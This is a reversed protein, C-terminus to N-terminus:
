VNLTILKQKNLKDMFEIVSKECTEKDINYENLLTYIISGVTSEDDILDWIRSGISNLAFYKGKELDMMVKDGNLDTTDIEKSKYVKSKINVM